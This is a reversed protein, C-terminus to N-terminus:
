AGPADSPQRGVLRRLQERLSQAWGMGPMGARPEAGDRHTMALRRVRIRAHGMGPSASPM